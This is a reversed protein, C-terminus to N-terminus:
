AGLRKGAWERLKARQIKVGNASEAVPFADLFVIAAPCKFSALGARCHAILAAADAKGGPRAVVFAVARQGNATAAGVVQSAAVAPHADLHAEIELPNVLYGGLRLADGMRALFVFGDATAYGLDGTRVYGDPTIAADTAAADDAYCSMMSPGAAEIEGIHGKPLLEGTDPDRM